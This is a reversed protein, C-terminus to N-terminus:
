YWKRLIAHFYAPHCALARCGVSQIAPLAASCVSRPATFRKKSNFQFALNMRHYAGDTETHRIFMLMPAAPSLRMMTCHRNACEAASENRDASESITM